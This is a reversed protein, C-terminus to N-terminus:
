ISRVIRRRGPRPQSPMANSPPPKMKGEPLASFPRGAHSLDAMSRVLYDGTQM